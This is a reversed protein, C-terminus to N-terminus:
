PVIVLDDEVEYVGPASWAAREAEEREAWSHVNGHLTVKNKAVEVRIQEADLEAARRLATEIKTKLEYPTVVPNRITILNTVGKVGTLNRVANEVTTRQFGFTVAGKLTIWGDHVEVQIQKGPVLINWDLINAVAKAIDVDDRIHMSPLEVKLEDAVGRVGAVREAAHVAGYIQAYSTVTGTLTAIGDKATVGINSADVMPEYQLEDLIDQQLEKNTKPM